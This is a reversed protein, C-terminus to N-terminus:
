CNEPREPRDLCCLTVSHELVCELLLLQPSVSLQGM